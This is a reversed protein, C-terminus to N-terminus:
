ATFYKKAFQRQQAYIKGTGAAPTPHPMKVPLPEFRPTNCSQGRLLRAEYEPWDVGYFLPWADAAAYEYFLIRRLADSRNHGSGHVTFPHHLTVTGPPGVATKAQDIALLDPDIAGYFLGDHHHDRLGQKHSGPLMLMPGKIEPCDDIFISMIVLGANSHPIFAWDQHWELPSGVGPAKINIKSHHLRIQPGILAEVLDLLIASRALQNFFPSVNHPKRIRQLVRAAGDPVPEFDFVPGEDPALAAPAMAHDTELRLRTCLDAPLFGPLVVFGDREFHAKLEQLETMKVGEVRM